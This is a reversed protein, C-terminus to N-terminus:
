FLFHDRNVLFAFSSDMSQRVKAGVFFADPEHKKPLAYLAYEPASTQEPKPAPPKSSASSQSSADDDWDDSARPMEFPNFSPDVTRHV